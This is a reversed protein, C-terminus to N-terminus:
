SQGWRHVLSLNLARGWLGWQAVPNHLVDNQKRINPPHYQIGRMCIKPSLSFPEQQGPLISTCHNSLHKWVQSQLCTDGHWASRTGNRKSEVSAWCLEPLASM